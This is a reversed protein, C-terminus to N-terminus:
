DVPGSGRRSAIPSIRATAFYALLDLIEEARLTDLMGAPMLSVPSVSQSEIEHRPITLRRAFSSTTQLIVQHEDQEM